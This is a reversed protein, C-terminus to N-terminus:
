KSTVPHPAPAMKKAPALVRWSRLWNRLDRLREFGMQRATEVMFGLSRRPGVDVVLNVMTRRGSWLQSMFTNEASCSDLAQFGAAFLEETIRDVLLAGPSFRGFEADYAIKWTYATSGCYMLVQAAIARGDVQLVAVSADDQTALEQMMRRTFAADIPDCAVATGQVGKWSRAELALFTEFAAAVGAPTRDNVVAVQGLASLRNWDQRLKKRTSGSRKVGFDRSVVPRDFRKVEVVDGGQERVAANLAAYAPSEADLSWLTVANPLGPDQEIAQLFAPMVQDIFQPDIVPTSQFAYDHPLAELIAPLVGGVRRWQVAWAGVLQRSEAGVDWALLVRVIAFDTAEAAKLAAPNMFPNPAARQVLDSWPAKLSESPSCITVSIM